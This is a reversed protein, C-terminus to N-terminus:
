PKAGGDPLNRIKAISILLAEVQDLWPPPPAIPGPEYEGLLKRGASSAESIRYNFAEGSNEWRSAPDTKLRRVITLLLDLNDEEAMKALLNRLHERSLDLAEPTPDSDTM